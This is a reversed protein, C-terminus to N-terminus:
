CEKGMGGTTSFVLSTLSGQEANLIRFNYDRKKKHENLKYCRKLTKNENRQANLDFIRVDFFARQGHWWFGRASIDARAEVSINGGILQEDGTLPQLIPEIRVNNTVEQLLDEEKAHCPM